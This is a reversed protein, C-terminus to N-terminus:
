LVATCCYLAYMRRNGATNVAFIVPAFSRFYKWTVFGPARSAGVTSKPAGPPAVGCGAGPAGPVVGAGGVLPFGQLCSFAFLQFSFTRTSPSLPSSGSEKKQPM